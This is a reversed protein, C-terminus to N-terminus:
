QSELFDSFNLIERKLIKTNTKKVWGLEFFFLYDRLDEINPSSKPSLNLKIDSLIFDYYSAPNAFETYTEYKLYNYKKIPIYRYKEISIDNKKLFFPIGYHFGGTNNIDIQPLYIKKNNELNSYILNIKKRILKNKNDILDSDSSALLAGLPHIRSKGFKSFGPVNIFHNKEDILDRSPHSLEIMKNALYKSNSFVVGGEGASIAKAGQLSMFSIDAFNVINKGEFNAGHAHSCDSIVKINPNIKKIKNINNVENTYGYAHTFIVASIDHKLIKENLTMKLDRDFNVYIPYFGNKLILISTSTFSLKSLLIKSGKKLNLAILAAEFAQTGNSFSIVYKSSFKKALKREFDVVYKPYKSYRNFIINKIIKLSLIIKLLLNSVILM